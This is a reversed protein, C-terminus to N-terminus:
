SNQEITGRGCWITEMEGYHSIYSSFRYEHEAIRFLIYTGDGSAEELIVDSQKPAFGYKNKLATIAINKLERNTKEKM